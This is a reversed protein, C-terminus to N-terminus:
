TSGAVRNRERILRDRERIHSALSLEFTVLLKRATTADRDARELKAVLERQVTARRTADEVDREAAALYKEILSLENMGSFLM